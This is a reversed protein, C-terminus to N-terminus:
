TGVGGTLYALTLGGVVIGGTILAWHLRREYRVPRIDSVGFEEAVDMRDAAQFASTGGPPAIAELQLNVENTYFFPDIKENCHGNVRSPCICQDGLQYADPHEWFNYLQCPGTSYAGGKTTPVMKAEKAPQYFDEKGYYRM